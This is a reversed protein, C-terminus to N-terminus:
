AAEDEKVLELNINCDKLVALLKELNVKRTKAAETITTKGVKITTARPGTNKGSVHKALIVKAVKDTIYQGKETEKIAEERAKKVGESTSALRILATTDFQAFNACDFFARFVRM